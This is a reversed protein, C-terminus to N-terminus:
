NGTRRRSPEKVKAPIPFRENVEREVYDGARNRVFERKGYVSEAWAIAEQLTAKKMDSFKGKGAVSFTKRFYDRWHAHLDTPIEKGNLFRLICFNAWRGGRSYDNPTYTIGIRDGGAERNQDWMNTIKRAETM